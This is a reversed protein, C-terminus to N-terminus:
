GDVFQSHLFMCVLVFELLFPQDTTLTQLRCGFSYNHSGICYKFLMKSKSCLRLVELLDVQNLLKVFAHFQM